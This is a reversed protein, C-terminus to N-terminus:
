HRIYPVIGWFKLHTPDKNHYKAFHKSVSHKDFGKLINQVHEKKKFQNESAKKQAALINYDAIVNSPM